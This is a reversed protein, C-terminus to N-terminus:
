ASSTFNGTPVSAPKLVEHGAMLGMSLSRVSFSAAERGKEHGGLGLSGFVQTRAVPGAEEGNLAAETTRGM